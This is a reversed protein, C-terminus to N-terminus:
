SDKQAIKSKVPSKKLSKQKQPSDRSIKPRPNVKRYMSRDAVAENAVGLDNEAEGKQPTV